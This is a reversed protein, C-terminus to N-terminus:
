SHGLVFQRRQPLVSWLPLAHVMRPGRVQVLQRKAVPCVVAAQRRAVRVGGGVDAHSERAVRAGVVNGGM